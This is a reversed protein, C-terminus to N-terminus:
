NRSYRFISLTWFGLLESYIHVFNYFMSGWLSLFVSVSGCCRFVFHAVKAYLPFYVLFIVFNNLSVCIFISKSRLACYLVYYFLMWSCIFAFFHCRGFSISVSGVLICLVFLCFM